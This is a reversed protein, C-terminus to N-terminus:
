YLDTNKYIDKFYYFLRPTDCYLESGYLINFKEFNHEIFINLFLTSIASMGSNTVIANNKKYKMMLTGKLEDFEPSSSRNYHYDHGEKSFVLNENISDM